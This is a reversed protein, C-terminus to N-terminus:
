HGAGPPAYTKEGIAGEHEYLPPLSKVKMRFIYKKINHPLAKLQYAAHTRTPVSFVQDLEELSLAKTEPVFLLILIFGIINWGAYWGFAGQPKFAGLLRPFTIAVVFNFFWLVSTSWSMGIDRVYLPYAEASYTFPVPGEGPSYAIAFLYIGLAVVALRGTEAPIWFAFGTMLLFVSMLPFTTLLLNRRGFTDITYVAPLAFLWNLMGFGWSALLANVDSFHAESFINSSYYAIVNVGCFQQMFMVITSALLARRNRPVTFLELFRNRGSEIEKEAELLVHIYYLDRAAQIPSHRLRLLSEYAKDYRGKSILWRPSEPCAFVQTMIILAPVGASGLMLRWNLGKVHATDKVHYFALDMANGIMIGFATWMQWMMVLAGRIVPPACEAAYVPVTTSKPGIGFGLIFRAVFLHQWSNTAGQWICTAFSFFATIFITGRRGFLNNLPATLWCSILGCCLYPASNVLGLLWQNRGNNSEDKPDIGFQPAFFLNAGNIVSEDMGQVAAALSCLIVLYYLQWPQDWRHTIERRLVQKDEEDLISLSEFKTPDQAVLAGKKFTERLHGLGHEDAFRAADDVLQDHPIGNLPNALKANVNTGVNDIHKVEKSYEYSASEKREISSKEDSM